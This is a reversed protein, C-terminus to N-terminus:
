TAPQWLVLSPSWCLSGVGSAMMGSKYVCAAQYGTRVLFAISPQMCFALTAEYFFFIVSVVDEFSTHWKLSPPLDGVFIALCRLNSGDWSESCEM